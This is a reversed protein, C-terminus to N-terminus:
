AHRCLALVEVEEDVALEILSGRGTEALVEAGAAAARRRQLVRQDEVGDGLLPQDATLLEAV